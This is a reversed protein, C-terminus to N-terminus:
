RRLGFYASVHRTERGTADAAAVPAADILGRRRARGAARSSRQPLGGAKANALIRRSAHALISYHPLKALVLARLLEARQPVLAVIGRYDTRLFPRLVLLAFLQAQRYDPSDPIEHPAPM